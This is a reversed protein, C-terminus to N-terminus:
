SFCNYYCKKCTIYSAVPRYKYLYITSISTPVLLGLLILLITVFMWLIPWVTIYGFLLSWLLIIDLVFANTFAMIPFVYMPLVYCRLNKRPLIFMERMKMLKDKADEFEKKLEIGRSKADKELEDLEELWKNLKEGLGMWFTSLPLILSVLGFFSLSIFAIVFEVVLIDNM